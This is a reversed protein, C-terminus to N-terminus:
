APTEYATGAVAFQTFRDMRKAEKRDMYLSPDFDNVEGAIRTPFAEADFRTIKTIGSKGQILNEWYKNLDNGLPSIVAMGTIVVRKSM